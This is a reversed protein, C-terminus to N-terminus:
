FLGKEIGFVIANLSARAKGLGNTYAEKHRELNGEPDGMAVVASSYRIDEFNKYYKSEHDILVELIMLTEERWQRLLETNYDKLLTDINSIKDRLLALQQEKNTNM